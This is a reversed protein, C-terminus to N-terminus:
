GSRKIKEDLEKIISEEIDKLKVKEEGAIGAMALVPDEYVDRVRIIIKDDEVDIFVEDGIKIGLRERIKKPITVRYGSLVKEKYM